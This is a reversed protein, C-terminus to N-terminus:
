GIPIIGSLATDELSAVWTYRRDAAQWTVSTENSSWSSHVPVRSFLLLLLLPHSSSLLLVVPVAALCVMEPLHSDTTGGEEDQGTPNWITATFQTCSDWAQNDGIRSKVRGKRRRLSEVRRETAVGRRAMEKETFKHEQKCGRRNKGKKRWDPKIISVNFFWIYSKSREKLNCKNCCNLYVPM